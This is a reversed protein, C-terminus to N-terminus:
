VAATEALGEPEPNAPVGVQYPLYKKLRLFHKELLHWCLFGALYSASFMSTFMLALLLPDSSIFPKLAIFTYTGAFYFVMQHLVYIAYSYKGFSRLFRSGMLRVFFSDPCTVCHLLVASFGVGIILFQLTYFSRFYPPNLACVLMLGCTLPVMLKLQGTIRHLWSQRILWALLAGLVLAEMRPVSAMFVFLKPLDAVEFAFGASLSAAIVGGCLWPFARRPALWVALPWIFYFQEEVCLSWFHSLEDLPWMGTKWNALYTWFWIQHTPRLPSNHLFGLPAYYYLFLCIFYLPFIRVARRGYFSRFYSPSEKTNLLISTILFGSLVFFLDVGCWFFGALGWFTKLFTTDLYGQNAGFGYFHHLMVFLIASGRLGDLAPIHSVASDANEPAATEPASSM